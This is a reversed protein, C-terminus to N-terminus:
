HYHCTISRCEPCYSRTRFVDDELPLIALVTRQSCNWRHVHRKEVDLLWMEKEARSVVILGTVIVAFDLAALVIMVAAQVANNNKDSPVFLIVLVPSLVFLWMSLPISLNGLDCRREANQMRKEWSERTM